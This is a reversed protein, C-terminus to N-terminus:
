DPHFMHIKIFDPANGKGTYACKESRLVINFFSAGVTKFKIIGAYLQFSQWILREAAHPDRLGAHYYAPWFRFFYVM